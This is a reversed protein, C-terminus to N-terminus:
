QLAWEADVGLCTNSTYIVENGPGIYSLLCVAQANCQTEMTVCSLTYLLIWYGMKQPNGHLGPAHALLTYWAREERIYPRPVLGYYINGDMNLHVKTAPLTQTGISIRCTSEKSGKETGLMLHSM